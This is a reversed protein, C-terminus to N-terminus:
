WIQAFFCKGEDEEFVRYVFGYEMDVVVAVVM